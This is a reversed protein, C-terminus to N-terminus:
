PYLCINNFDELAKQDLMKVTVHSFYQRYPTFSLGILWYILWSRAYVPHQLEWYEAGSRNIPIYIIYITWPHKQIPDTYNQHIFLFLHLVFTLNQTSKIESFWGGGQFKYGPKLYCRIYLVEFQTFCGQRCYIYM